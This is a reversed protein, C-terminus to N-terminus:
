KGGMLETKHKSGSSSGVFYTISSGWAAGLSGIMLLLAEGGNEPLGYMLMYALTGFFGATTLYLVQAPLNDKTAIQRARADARDNADLEAFKFDQEAEIKQLEADIARLKALGDTTGTATAVAEELQEDSMKENGLIQKAVGAALPGLPGGAAALLTPAVTKLVGFLKAFPKGKLAM